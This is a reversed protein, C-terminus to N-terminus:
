ADRCHVVPQVRLLVLQEGGKGLTVRFVEKERDFTAWFFIDDATSAAEEVLELGSENADVGSAFPPPVIAPSMRELPDMLGPVCAIDERGTEKPQSDAEVEVALDQTPNTSSCAALLSSILLIVISLIRANMGEVM